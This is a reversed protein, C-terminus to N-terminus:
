TQSCLQRKHRKGKKLYVEDTMSVHRTVQRPVYIVNKGCVHPADDDTRGKGQLCLTSDQHHAQSKPGRGWWWWRSQSELCNTSPQLLWGRARPCRRTSTRRWDGFDWDSGEPDHVSSSMHEAESSHGSGPITTLALVWTCTAHPTSMHEHRRQNNERSKIFVPFLSPFDHADDGFFQRPM